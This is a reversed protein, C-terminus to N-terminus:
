QVFARSASLVEAQRHRKLLLARKVTSTYTPGRGIQFFVRKVRGRQFTLSELRGSLLLPRRVARKDTFSQVVGVSFRVLLDLGIGACRRTRDLTCVRLGARMCTGGRSASSRKKKRQEGGKMTRIPSLSSLLRPQCRRYRVPPDSAGASRPALRGPAGTIWYLRQQESADTIRHSASAPGMKAWM